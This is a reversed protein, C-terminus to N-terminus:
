NEGRIMSFKVAFSRKRYAKCIRFDNCENIIDNLCLINNCYTDNNIITNELGKGNIGYIYDPYIYKSLNYDCGSYCSANSFNTPYDYEYLPNVFIFKSDTYNINNCGCTLDYNSLKCGINCSLFDNWNSSIYDCYKECKYYYSCDNIFAIGYYNPIPMYVANYPVYDLINDGIISSINTYGNGGYFDLYINKVPYSYNIDKLDFKTNNIDLIGLFERDYINTTSVSVNARINGHIELIFELDYGNRDIITSNSFSVILKDGSIFSIYTNNNKDILYDLNSLIESNSINFIGGYIINNMTTYSIIEDIYAINDNNINDLTYGNIDPLIGYCNTDHQERILYNGAQLNNFEFKYKTSINPEGLDLIGNYNLDIYITTYQSKRGNIFLAIGFLSHNNINNYSISKVYSNSEIDGNVLEGIYNLNNCINTNNFSYEYIGLCDDILTCNNKCDDINNFTNKINEESEGNSFQLKTNNNNNQEDSILIYDTNYSNVNILFLSILLNYIYIKM